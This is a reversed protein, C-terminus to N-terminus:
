GNHEGKKLLFWDNYDVHENDMYEEVIGRDSETTYWLLFNDIASILSEEVDTRKYIEKKNSV